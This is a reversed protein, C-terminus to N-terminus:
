RKAGYSKYTEGPTFVGNVYDPSPIPNDAKAKSYVTGVSNYYTGKIKYTPVSDANYYALNSKITEAFSSDDVTSPVWIIGVYKDPIITSFDPVYFLNLVVDAAKVDKASVYGSTGKAYVQALTNNRMELSTITANNNSFLGFNSITGDTCYIVNNKFVVSAYTSTTNTQFLNKTGTGAHLKIDCDTMNINLINKQGYLLNMGAPIEIKCNNFFITEVEGDGGIGFVNGSTMVTEYKINSFIMYDNEASANLYFSKNETRKITALASDLSLVVLQSATGNITVDTADSAVFYVGNTAINKSESANNILVADGYTTKNITINGVAIGQGAMYKEYDNSPESPTPDEPESPTPDEPDPTEGAEGVTVQLKAITSFGEASVALIAIDKTTDASISKTAVVSVTLTNDNLTVEVNAPKAVVAASAVGASKVTFTKTEGAQLVQVGEAEITFYFTPVVPLTLKQGDKLEVTLTKGDYVVDAFYEDSGEQPVAPVPKGDAGLVNEYTKGADYSVTWNGEADVGFVPTIGSDGTAKVKNGNVLLYEPGTGYDVMWYGDKDISMVPANAVGVSGQNITLTQGNSLTITYVGDKEEVKNITGGGALAQLAEINSNLTPIVSELVQVKGELQDLRDNVESLDSCSAAGLLLGAASLAFINRTM